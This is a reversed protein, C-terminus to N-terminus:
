LCNGIAACIRACDRQGPDQACSLSGSNEDALGARGQQCQLLSLRELNEACRYGYYKCHARWGDDKWRMGAGPSLSRPSEFGPDYGLGGSEIRLGGGQAYPCGLQGPNSSSG